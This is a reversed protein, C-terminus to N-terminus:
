LANRLWQQKPFAIIKVYESNTNTAETIWRAIRMRRTMNYDTFEGGTGYKEV